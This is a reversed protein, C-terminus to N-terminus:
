VLHRLFINRTAHMDWTQRSVMCLTSFFSRKSRAESFAVIAENIVGGQYFTATQKLRGRLKYFSLMNLRRKVLKNPTGQVVAHANLSPLLITDFSQCLFHSAEYHLDRVVNGKHKARHYAKHYIRLLSSDSTRSTNVGRSFIWYTV